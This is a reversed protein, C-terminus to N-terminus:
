AHSPRTPLVLRRTRRPWQRMRVSCDGGLPESPTVVPIYDAGDWVYAALDVYQSGDWAKFPSDGGTKLDRFESEGSDWIFAPAMVVGRGPRRLHRWHHGRRAPGGGLRLVRHGDRQLQWVWGQRRAGGPAREDERNLVLRGPGRSRVLLDEHRRGDPEGDDERGDHVGCDSRGCRHQLRHHEVRHPHAVHG